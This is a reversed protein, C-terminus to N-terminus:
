CSRISGAALKLDPITQNMRSAIEKELALKQQGNYNETMSGSADLIVAFNEIGQVYGTELKENVNQPTFSTDKAAAINVTAYGFLTGVALYCVLQKSKNLM